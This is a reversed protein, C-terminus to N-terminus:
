GGTNKWVVGLAVLVIMVAFMRRLVLPPLLDKIRVGVTMGLAGGDLFWAAPELPLSPTILFNASFASVSVLAIGVLSTALAREIPIAAVVLLAPVVLFGGGSWVNGVLLRYAYRRNCIGCAFCDRHLEELADPAKETTTATTDMTIMILAM